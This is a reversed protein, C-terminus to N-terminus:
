NLQCLMPKTVGHMLWSEGHQEYSTNAHAEQPVLQPQTSLAAASRRFADNQGKEAAVKKTSAAKWSKGEM